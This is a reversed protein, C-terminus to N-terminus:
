TLSLLVPLLLEEDIYPASEPSILPYDILEIGRAKFFNRDIGGEYSINESDVLVFNLIDKHSIAGHDRCGYELLRDVQESLSLGHCEPDEATNPIYIKPGSNRSIARGVGKPLLNALISSYFSGMPYCILEAGSIATRIKDRIPVTVPRPDEPDDTLYIRKIKTFLPSAEKGTFRHQGVVIRGDILEVVLHLYRNVVPRVEGRANVLKSYIFIVPDPHCRNELYGATLILNGVSAGRLDFDGPLQERIGQLHNRIIKRMPNPIGKILFHCGEVMDDLERSLRVRDGDRAFRYAFLAYIEPNGHLSQDALDMLRARLDGISLMKFAKRLVASSGGSDFATLIHTSNHTFDILRRSTNRLASGGSFFLLKPGLEPTKAYRALKVKDPITIERHIKLRLRKDTM